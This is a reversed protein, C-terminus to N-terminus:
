MIISVQFESTNDRLWLVSMPRDNNRLFQEKLVLLSLSCLSFLNFFHPYKLVFTVSLYKSNLNSRETDERDLQMNNAKDQLM